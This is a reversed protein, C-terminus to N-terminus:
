IENFKILVSNDKIMFSMTKRGNNFYKIYHVNSTLYYM